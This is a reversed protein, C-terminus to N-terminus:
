VFCLNAYFAFFITSMCIKIPYYRSLPLRM